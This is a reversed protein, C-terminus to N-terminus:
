VIRLCHVAKAFFHTAVASKSVTVLSGPPFTSAPPRDIEIAVGFMLIGTVPPVPRKSLARPQTVILGLEVRILV